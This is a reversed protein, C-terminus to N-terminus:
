SWLYTYNSGFRVSTYDSWISTCSSVSWVDAACCICFSMEHGHLCLASVNVASTTPVAVQTGGFVSGGSAAGFGGFPKAQKRMECSLM